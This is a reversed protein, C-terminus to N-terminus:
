RQSFGTPMIVACTSNCINMGSFYDYKNDYSPFNRICSSATYCCTSQKVCDRRPNNLIYQANQNVYIARQKLKRITDSADM